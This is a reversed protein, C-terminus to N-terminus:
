WLGGRRQHVVKDLDIREDDSDVTTQWGEDRVKRDMERSIRGRLVSLDGRFEAMAGCNECAFGPLSGGYGAEYQLQHACKPCFPAIGEIEDCDWDWRWAWRVGPIIADFVDQRYQWHAPRSPEDRREFLSGVLLVYVLLAPLGALLALLIWGWGQMELVCQSHWYSALWGWASSFAGLLGEGLAAAIVVLVGGVIMWFIRSSSTENSSASM